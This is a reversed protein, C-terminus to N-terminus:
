VLPSYKVDNGFLIHPFLKWKKTNKSLTGENQCINRAKPFPKRQKQLINVGAEFMHFKHFTSKKKHKTSLGGGGGQSKDCNLTKKIFGRLPPM